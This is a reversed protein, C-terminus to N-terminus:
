ARALDERIRCRTLLAHDLRVQTGRVADTFAAHLNSGSLDVGDLTVKRLSAEMLNAGLWCARTLDSGTFDAGRASLRNGNSASLDCLSFLARDLCAGRLSAGTLSAGDLSANSLNAQDFCAASLRSMQDVRLDNLNAGRASIRQGSLASWLTSQLNAGDINLAHATCSQWQSGVLSAQQACVADLVCSLLRVGHLQAETFNAMRFVCGSFQGDTLQVKALSAEAFSSDEAYGVNISAGDFLGRELDCRQFFAGDLCARQLRVENMACDIFVCERLDAATLTCGQLQCGEFQSTRLDANSLDLASLDLNVFRQGALSNGAQYVAQVRERTWDAPVQVEGQPATTAAPTIAALEERAADVKSRIEAELENARLLGAALSARLAAQEAPLHQTVDDLDMAALPVGDVAMAQVQQLQAELGAAGVLRAAQENAQIQAQAVATRISAEHSVADFPTSSTDKIQAVMGAIDPRSPPKFSAPDFAVGLKATLAKVADVAQTFGNAVEDYVRDAAAQAVSALAPVDCAPMAEPDIQEDIQVEDAGPSVWLHRVWAQGSVVPDDALECVLGLATIDTADPDRVPIQVRYLLLLRQADPFLWITDLDLHAEEVSDPREQFEVFLRPRHGPLCGELRPLHPHMGTVSWAEDGRWYQDHCQDQAVEDFWRLDVDLPPWPARHATWQADLTGLFGARAASYPPLPLFTAPAPQDAPHLAPCGAAEIPAVVSGEFAKPDLQYGQGIPNDAYMEGGFTNELTLPLSELRGKAVARWGLLHKNWSRPPFAHLCKHRAGVQVRVEMGAGQADNLAYAQGHVAFTGTRKKLGRDFAQGAFRQTVWVWADETAFVEGTDSDVLLGVTVVLCESEPSRYRATLLLGKGDIKHQM